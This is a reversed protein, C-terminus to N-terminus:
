DRLLAIKRKLQLMNSVEQDVNPLDKLLQRVTPCNGWGTLTYFEYLNESDVGADKNRKLFRNRLIEKWNAFNKPVEEGGVWPLWEMIQSQHCWSMEAIAEFADNINIALDFSNDGLMYGDYVNLIVPKKVFDMSHVVDPYEQTFAQPVNILYAVRRIADAITLHDVHVGSLSDSPIPPCFLYDPTYDRITKWLAALLPAGIEMYGERPTSGDPYKLTQLEYMGIEASARQEELRIIATEARPHIHHGGAGDTSVVIQSSFRRRKGQRRALEFTGCATFEFDDFHAHINQFKM